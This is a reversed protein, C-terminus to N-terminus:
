HDIVIKSAKWTLCLQYSRRNYIMHGLNMSNKIPVAEDIFKTYDKM